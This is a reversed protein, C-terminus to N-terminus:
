VVCVHLEGGGDESSKRQSECGVRLGDGHVNSEVGTSEAGASRDGNRSGDVGPNIKGAVDVVLCGRQQSRSTINTKEKM